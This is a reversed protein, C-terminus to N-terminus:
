NNKRIQEHLRAREKTAGQDKGLRKDLLQLQQQPSRAARAEALEEAYARRATRAPHGKGVRKPGTPENTPTSAEPKSPKNSKNKAQAAYLAKRRQNRTMGVRKGGVLGKRSGRRKAM